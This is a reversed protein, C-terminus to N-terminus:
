GSHVGGKFANRFIEPHAGIFDAVSMAPRGTVKQVDDTLRAYRGEAHLKAMTHIHHYVHEPLGSPKLVEDEWKEFPMDTYAVPRGLAKAYEAAMATMDESRPGTLEYVQGIHGAPNALVTAIVRAVDDVAVPSTRASGFPLKITGDRAISEAAWPSFFFHNLFVTARVHTVPLGSWNLAQESLFHQKQQPSDTMSSLSMDSVTMQSINVLSQLNGQQLAAAAMIVTAELYPASVAMGFYVRRCGDLIRVVDKPETLDGIVVEAGMTRLVEAREDDSHVVARVPLDQQRLLEVVVRGVAGVRGAAGTVLIPNDVAMINGV